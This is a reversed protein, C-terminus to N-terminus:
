PVTIQGDGIRIVREAMEMVRHDHTSFIFTTKEEQNLQKMLQLVGEGTKSDLNATPEDALVIAPHGALARAIAVRQRQGGSLESPKHKAFDALGVVVLYHAVRRRREKPSIDKRYLLPYEVNEWASLVPLLNFTQFIFGLTRARLDALQNPTKKGVEEDGIYIEGRTPTDICGVLNLLTSKGSGSPGAIAIFEGEKIEMSVDRLAQVTQKGLKYEKWVHEVRVKTM